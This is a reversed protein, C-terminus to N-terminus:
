VESTSFAEGKGEEGQTGEANEKYARYADGKYVKWPFTVFARREKATEAQRIVIDVAM